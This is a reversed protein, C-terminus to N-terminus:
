GGFPNTLRPDLGDLCQTATGSCVPTVPSSVAPPPQYTGVCIYLVGVLGNEGCFGDPGYPAYVIPTGDATHDPRSAPVTDTTRTPADFITWWRPMSTPPAPSVRTAPSDDAHSVRTTPSTASARVGRTSPAATPAASTRMPWPASGEVQPVSAAQTLAAVVTGAITAGLIAGALHRRNIM